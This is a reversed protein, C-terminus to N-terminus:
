GTPRRQLGKFLGGRNVWRNLADDVVPPMCASLAAFMGLVILIVAMGCLCLSDSMLGYDLRADAILALSRMKRRYSGDRGNKQVEQQPM